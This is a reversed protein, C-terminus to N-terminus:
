FWFSYTILSKLVESLELAFLLNTTKRSLLAQGKMHIMRRDSSVLVSVRDPLAGSSINTVTVK